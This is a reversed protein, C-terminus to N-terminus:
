GQRQNGPEATHDQQATQDECAFGKLKMLRPGDYHQPDCAQKAELQEQFNIKNATCAEHCGTDTGACVLLFNCPEDSRGAAGALHHVELHRGIEYQLHWGCLMCVQPMESRWAIAAMPDRVVNLKEYPERTPIIRM